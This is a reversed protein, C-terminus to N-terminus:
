LQESTTSFSVDSSPELRDLGLNSGVPSSGADFDLPTALLGDHHSISMYYPEASNSVPRMPSLYATTQYGSDM